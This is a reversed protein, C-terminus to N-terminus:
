WDQPLAAGAYPDYNEPPRPPPATVEPEITPGAGASSMSTAPIMLGAAIVPAGFLLFCGMLTRLGQRWNLRGDLLLFGFIAVALTAAVTAVSGLLLQQVWGIAAALGTPMM